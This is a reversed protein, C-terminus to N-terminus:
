IVCCLPNMMKIEDVKEAILGNNLVFVVVNNSKENTVILCSDTLNFDRPSDGGCDEKQLFQLNEGDVSYVCLADEVRLSCYLKKGDISLRIAAGDAKEQSCEIDYKKINSTTKM